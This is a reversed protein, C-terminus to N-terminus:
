PRSDPENSPAVRAMAAPGVAIWALVLTWTRGRAPNYDAVLDSWSQKAALRGFVFEFAITL